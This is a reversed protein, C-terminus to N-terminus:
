ILEKKKKFSDIWLLLNPYDALSKKLEANLLMGQDNFFKEIPISEKNYLSLRYKVIDVSDDDRHILTPKNDCKECPNNVDPYLPPMNYEGEFIGEVNISRDCDVCIRRGSLKRVIYEEPLRFNLCFDPKLNESINM